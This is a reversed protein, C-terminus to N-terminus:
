TWDMKELDTKMNFDLGFNGKGNRQPITRSKTIDAM